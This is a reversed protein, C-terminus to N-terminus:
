VEARPLDDMVVLGCHIPLLTFDAVNGYLEIVYVAFHPASLYENATCISRTRPDNRLM